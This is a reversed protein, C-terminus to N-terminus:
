PLDITVSVDHELDGLDVGTLQATHDFGGVTSHVTLTVKSLIVRGGRPTGGADVADFALGIPLDALPLHFTGDAASLANDGRGPATAEWLVSVAYRFVSDGEVDTWDVLYLDPPVLQGTDDSGDWVLAFSGAAFARDALVRRTAGGADLIRLTSHSPKPTAFDIRVSGTSCPNNSVFLSRLAVVSDPIDFGRLPSRLLSATRAAPASTAALEFALAIEAGAVPHGAADRVQGNLFAPAPKAPDKACSAGAVGLVLILVGLSRRM